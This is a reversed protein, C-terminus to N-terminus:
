LSEVSGINSIKQIMTILDNLFDSTNNEDLSVSYVKNEQLIKSILKFQELFDFVLLNEFAFVPLIYKFLKQFDLTDVLSKKLNLLLIKQNNENSLQEINEKQLEILNEALLIPYFHKRVNNIKGTVYNIKQIKVRDDMLLEEIKENPLNLFPLYIIRLGARVSLFTKKFEEESLVLYEEFFSPIQSYPIVVQRYVDLNSIYWDIVCYKELYLSNHIYKEANLQPINYNIECDSLHLSNLLEEFINIKSLDVRVSDLIETTSVRLLEDQKDISFFQLVLGNIKSLFNQKIDACIMDILLSEQSRQIRGIYPFVTYYRKLISFKIFVKILGKLISKQYKETLNDM